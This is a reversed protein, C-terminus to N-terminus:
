ISIAREASDELCSDFTFVIRKPQHVDYDVDKIEEAYHGSTYASITEQWFNYAPINEPIVSVEWIGKHMNWIQYAVDRGIGKSQFKALIFFEGICWQAESSAGSQHFLVFGAIEGDVKVLYARRDSDTIYHKYDSSEYLGDAPIAWEHSIFGCARSADYVYFRAMNQIFPYDSITAAIIEIVRANVM